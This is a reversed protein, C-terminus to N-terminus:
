QGTARAEGVWALPVDGLGARQPNQAGNTAASVRQQTFAAAETFTVVGDRDADAAGRLGELLTHTFVGHGGGWQTGERSFEDGAAASLTVRMSPSFLSAFADNVPSADQVLAGAAHCADAVVVVRQAAIQRRLATQFDWMPFATSAVRAFETDHSLIYLNSPRNPDPAGHSAVYVTVQDDERAQQLFVFLADRIAATTAEENLLVRMQAAPVAGGAPSRLFDAFARADDDAYELGPIAADAYQSVGIVVAWRRGVGTRVLTATEGGAGRAVVRVTDVGAPLSAEAEFLVGPGRVAYRAGEEATLRRVPVARGAVTVQADGVPVVGRIRARMPAATASVGIGRTGREAFSVAEVIAIAPGPAPTGENPLGTEGLQAPVSGPEPSWYARDDWPKASWDNVLQGPFPTERMLRGAAQRLAAARAAAATAEVARGQVAAEAVQRGDDARVARLRVDATGTQMGAEGAADAPARGLVIVQAGLERGLVVAEADDGGMARAARERQGATRAFAPDIVRFGAERLFSSVVDAAAGDADALFVVVRPLDGDMRAGAGSSPRPTSPSPASAAAGGGLRDLRSRAAEYGPAAGLADRYMAAAEARKGDDELALGRSFLLAARAPVPPTAAMGGPPQLDLDRFTEEALRAVTRFLNERRDTVELARRLRGTEVEVVRVDVRLQGYVDAYSGFLMYRAGLLRGVRVATGEDAAGSLTLRQEDLLSRLRDREVMTVRPNRSMETTLMAALGKGLGALDQAEPGLSGGDTLDLVALTPRAEQAGLPAALTALLAALALIRRM